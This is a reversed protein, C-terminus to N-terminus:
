REGEPREPVCEGLCEAEGCLGDHVILSNMYAITPAPEPEIQAATWMVCTGCWGCGCPGETPTSPRPPDLLAPKM